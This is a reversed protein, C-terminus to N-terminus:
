MNWFLRKKGQSWPIWSPIKWSTESTLCFNLNITGYYEGHDLHTTKRSKRGQRSEFPPWEEVSCIDNKGSSRSFTREVGPFRWARGLRPSASPPFALPFRYKLPNLKIIEFDVIAISNEYSIIGYYFRSEKSNIATSYNTFFTLALLRKNNSSYFKLKRFEKLIPLQIEISTGRWNGRRKNM